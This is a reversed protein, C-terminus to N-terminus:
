VMIPLAPAQVNIVSHERSEISQEDLTLCNSGNRQSHKEAAEKSAERPKIDM